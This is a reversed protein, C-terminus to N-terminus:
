TAIQGRTGLDTAPETPICIGQQCSGEASRTQWRNINSLPSWRNSTLAQGGVVVESWGSGKGLAEARLNDVSRPPTNTPM